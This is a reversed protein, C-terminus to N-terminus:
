LAEQRQIAELLAILPRSEGVWGVVADQAQIM